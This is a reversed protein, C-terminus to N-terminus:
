PNGGVSTEATEEPVAIEGQMVEEDLMQRAREFLFALLYDRLLRLRQPDGLPALFVFDNFRLAGRQVASLYVGRIRDSSRATQLQGVWRSLNPLQKTLKEGIDQIRKLMEDPTLEVSEELKPFELGERQGHQWEYIVALLIDRIEGASADENPPLLAYFEDHKLWGERVYRLLVSYIEGAIVNRLEMIRKRADNSQAIEIGLRELIALRSAPMKRVEQLYLRHGVWSGLLKPTDHELCAGLVSELNMLRHAVQQVFGVREKRAQGQLSESVQLLERWFRQFAKPSFFQLRDLFILLENPVPIASVYGGRNDNSFVYATTPLPHEYVQRLEDTFRDLLECLLYLVTGANGATEWRGFFDLSEHTAIRRNFYQWGYQDAIKAAVPLAPTHLFWLRNYVGTRLVAVPLFRTALACLGCIRLGYAFATYFNVIGELLPMRDKRVTVMAESPRQEGCAYCIEDSSESQLCLVARQFDTQIAARFKRRVNEAKEKATKGKWNSPNALESNPFIQSMASRAFAKEVGIGLSHDSLLIRELEGAAKRLHQPTLDELRRVKVVAAIAALGADVFPHGTWHVTGVEKVEQLTCGSPWQVSSDFIRVEGTVHSNYPIWQTKNHSPAVAECLWAQGILVVQHGKGVFERALNWFSSSSKRSCRRRTLEFGQDCPRQNLFNGFSKRSRGRM